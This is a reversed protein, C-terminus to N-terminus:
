GPSDAQLQWREAWGAADRELAVVGHLPFSQPTLVEDLLHRRLRDLHPMHGVLMVDRAEVQLVDAIRPPDDPQMWRTASFEALANCSRWYVQGTQRARLKGSHWIVTPSVPLAAVQRSLMEVQQYGRSSLPRQPDVNPGVADGHHVLYVFMSLVISSVDTNMSQFFAPGAKVGSGYGQLPGAV